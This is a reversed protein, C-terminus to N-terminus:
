SSASASRGGGRWRPRAPKSAPSTPSSCNSSPRTRSPSSGSTAPIFSSLANLMTTKGSGTGGSVLLSIRGRVAAKLLDAMLPRLAGLEVLRDMSIPKKAFKRISVLPGDVAM